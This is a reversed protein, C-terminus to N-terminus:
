VALRWAAAHRIRGEIDRPRPLRRRLREGADVSDAKM